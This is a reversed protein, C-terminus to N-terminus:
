LKTARYAAMAAQEAEDSADLGNNNSEPEGINGGGKNNYNGEIVKFANKSNILWDFGCWSNSSNRGSLFDSKDAITFIYELRQYIDKDMLLKAKNLSNMLIKIKRKREDSLGRVKPLDKCIRIYTDAIQNFNINEQKKDPVHGVDTPLYEEKSSYIDKIDKDIDLEIDLEIDIANGHTVNYNDTVNCQTLLKQKERHKSVRKRTQERIKELGEINQYKDWSSIYYADNIIQIMKFKEFTRLALRLTSSRQEMNFETILMEETYPIEETFYIWGDNNSTGALCLLKFWVVIISDGDPMREIQKIKRNDFVHTALRIWKVDAM